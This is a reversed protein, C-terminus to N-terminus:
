DSYVDREVEELPPWPDNIAQTAASEVEDRIVKEMEELEKATYGIEQLRSKAILIPDRALWAEVEEKPRYTGPDSRSHGRQRYTKCEIFVPGNGNRAQEIAHKALPYLVVIDNGDVCYSAMNYVDGRKYLDTLPTSKDIRTYEGYLNNECVFVVPARWISALNLAEHFAGINTAGDGFFTVSVRGDGSLQSARALGVAVPLGAGVIAFSGMLYKTADTIHMSGGKGRNVGTVRGLIEAFAARMDIGRAIAHGHGRYTYTSYDDQRMAKAFSVAIAEQGICLHISGHILGKGYMQQLTDEFYRIKVMTKYMDVLLVSDVNERLEVM